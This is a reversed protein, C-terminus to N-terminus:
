RKAKDFSSQVTEGSLLYSYLHTAFQQSMKDNLRESVDYSIVFPINAEKFIQGIESSFCASIVVLKLNKVTGLLIKLDEKTM